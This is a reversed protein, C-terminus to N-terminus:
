SFNRMLKEFPDFLVKPDGCEPPVGLCGDSYLDIRGYASVADDCYDSMFHFKFSIDVLDHSDDAAGQKYLLMDLVQQSRFWLWDLYCIAMWSKVEFKILM